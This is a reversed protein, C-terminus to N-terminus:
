YVPLDEVVQGNQTVVGSAHLHVILWRKRFKRFVLTRRGFMGPDNLHFTVWAVDGLMQTKIDLPDIKLYPPGPRQKRANEFVTKFVREIELKGDVRTPLKASPPFFATADPAFFARFREWDLAVFAAVFDAAAKQVLIESRHRKVQGDINQTLLISVLVLLIKNWQYM